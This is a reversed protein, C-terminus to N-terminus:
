RERAPGALAPVAEAYLRRGFADAPEITGVYTTSAEDRVPHGTPDLRTQTFVCGLKAERTKAPGPDGKGPRDRTEHPVMPVGTGDLAVYLTSVPQLPVLTGALAAQREHYAVAEVQGRLTEAVREVAKTMVRVGALEELDRRGEAFADKSGVRGMLRRVGPSFSTGVIDLEEDKPSREQGCPYYALQVRVAALV